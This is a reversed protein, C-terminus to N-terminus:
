PDSVRIEGSFHGFADTVWTVLPCYQSNADPLQTSREIHCIAVKVSEVGGGGKYNVNGDINVLFPIRYPFKFMETPAVITGNGKFYSQTATIAYEM